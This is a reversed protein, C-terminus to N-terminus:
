PRRRSDRVQGRQHEEEQDAAARLEIRLRADGSKVDDGLIFDNLNVFDGSMVPAAMTSAGVGRKGASPPPTPEAPAPDLSALTSIARQNGADHELVRQYVTRARDM